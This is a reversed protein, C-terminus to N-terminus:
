ITFSDELGDRDVDYLENFSVGELLPRKPFKEQFRDQFHELFQQNVGEIDDVVVEGHKFGVINNRLYRYKM